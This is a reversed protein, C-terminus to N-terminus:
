REIVLAVLSRVRDLYEPLRDDVDELWTVFNMEHIVKEM